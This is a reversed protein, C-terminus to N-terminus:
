PVQRKIHLLVHRKSICARNTNKIPEPKCFEIYKKKRLNKDHKYHLLKTSQCNCITLSCFWTPIM